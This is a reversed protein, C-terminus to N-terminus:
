MNWQEMQDKQCISRNSCRGPRETASSGVGFWVGWVLRDLHRFKCSFNITKDTSRRGARLGSLRPARAGTSSPSPSCFLFWTDILPPVLGHLSGRHPFVAPHALHHSRGPTAMTSAELVDDPRVLEVCRSRPTPMAVRSSLGPDGSTPSKRPTGLTRESLTKQNSTTRTRFASEDIAPTQLDVAPLLGDSSASQRQTRPAHALGPSSASSRGTEM